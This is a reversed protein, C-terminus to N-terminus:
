KSGEKIRTYAQEFRKQVFQSESEQVNCFKSWGGIEDIVLPVIPDKFKRPSSTGCVKRALCASQYAKTAEPCQESATSQGRRGNGSNQSRTLWKSLFAPMGSFTKRKKSNDICWQRAARCEGLVDVGPFSTQYEAVKAGKLTWETTGRGVCPFVMIVEEGPKPVSSQKSDGKLPEPCVETPPVTNDQGTIDQLCVQESRAGLPVSQIWAIDTGMLVEIAKAVEDVPADTKDSIDTATLPQGDADILTGRPHCKSATQVILVWCAFIKLGDPRRMIRKYGKGDHKNPVPVWSVKDARKGQAKEFHKDWDKIKYVQM